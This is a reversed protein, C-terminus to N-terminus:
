VTVYFNFLIYFVQVNVASFFTSCTASIMMLFCTCLSEVWDTNSKVSPLPDNM